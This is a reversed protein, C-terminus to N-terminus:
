KKETRRGRSWLQSKTESGCGNPCTTLNVTWSWIMAGFTSTWWLTATLSALAGKTCKRYHNMRFITKPPVINSTSPPCTTWLKTTNLSKTLIKVTWFEATGKLESFLNLFSDQARSTKRNLTWLRMTTGFSTALKTSGKRYSKAKLFKIIRRSKLYWHNKFQSMGQFGRRFSQNLKKSKFRRRNCKHRGKCSNRGRRNRSNLGISSTRRRSIIM